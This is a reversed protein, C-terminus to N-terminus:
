RGFTVTLINFALLGFSALIATFYDSELANKYIYAAILFQWASLLLMKLIYLLLLFRMSPLSMDANVLSPMFLMLLFGIIVIFLHSIILATLTKMLRNQKKRALLLIATYLYYSFVLLGSALLIKNLAFRHNLDIMAWQAVIVLFYFTMALCLIFLSYPTNRPNERFITVRWYQKLLALWMVIQGSNRDNVQKKYIDRGTSSGATEM